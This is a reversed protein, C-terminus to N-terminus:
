RVVKGNFTITMGRHTENRVFKLKVGVPASAIVALNKENKEWRVSVPGNCTASVGKAFNLDKVWPSIAYAAGGVSTQRIGLTIRNLFYVPASSWAHCHSRTPFGEPRAWSSPFVEWVTTAGAKLMPLYSERMSALIDDNCGEKELAEYMFMMAFGSAIRIMGEPPTLCNKLALKRDKEPIVDHLLALMSTHQSTVPSITGDEHISDPYARKRTDWYATTAKIIRARFARLWKQTAADKLVVACKLAADIAGVILLNNHIVTRHNDDNGAWELLNWYPASFLGKDACLRETGKLNAKVYRWMKRLFKEDGSYFYCDWVSIGWLFSWAPLICEWASPVQCGVMPFLDLSQATLTACRKALDEAGFATMAFLAENRADGVWLTQEYLPCDTFTDEMCLKLTRASIEWIRDLHPDSCAFSGAHNVPYTSEILSVKRLEVPGTMARLTIFVYRGARRRLSVFQNRGERCVYRMGNRNGWPLQVAGDDSIYELSFIDVITGAPASIDLSYYGCTQEGFDYALEIDGDRSPKVVTAEPTDHMLAEPSAILSHAPAIPDRAFFDLAADETFFCDRPVPKAAGKTVTKFTSEDHIAARWEELRRKAAVEVDDRVPDKHGMFIMDNGVYATEPLTAYCWPMDRRGTLPNELSAGGLQLSRIHADKDHTCVVRYAAFLLNRGAKVRFVGNKGASGNVTVDHFPFDLTVTGTRKAVITTALAHAMSCSHNAEVLGPHLMHATLFTPGLTRPRVVNAGHFRKLAFPQRTLLAVDRPNLDKWPGQDAAFLEAAPGFRATQARRADYHEWPEMQISVKPTMRAWGEAEAVQWSADTGVVIPKGKEPAIDFQALLGAQQPVQHFTGAGFYRAVILAENDGIRLYPTVDIVDYQYHKPWSRCPGDNVWEGNIYLRYFSDAAIAVTAERVRPAHFTRRALITQNYANYNAQKKWIWKATFKM